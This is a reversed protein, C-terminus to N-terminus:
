YSRREMCKLKIELCSQEWFIACCAMMLLRCSSKFISTRGQAQCIKIDALAGLRLDISRARFRITPKHALRKPTRDIHAELYSEGLWVDCTIQSPNVTLRLAQPFRKQRAVSKMHVFDVRRDEHKNIGAWQAVDCMSDLTLRQQPCGSPVNGIIRSKPQELDVCIDSCPSLPLKLSLQQAQQWVLAM